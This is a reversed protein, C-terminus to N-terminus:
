TVLAEAGRKLKGALAATQARAKDLPVGPDACCSGYLKIKPETGSPRVTFVSGGKMRFQLVNSPPLDINKLVKGTARDVTVGNQYDLVSQVAIGGIEAPPSVRLSTMIETIREMGKQGKLTRSVLFEEFYGFEAYIRDLYDIIGMGNTRCWLAMEATLVAASVADKDRVEPELLYGYSEEGGFLYKEGGKEFEGMKEAIYKFGTLVDYMKAGFKEAIRSQLETTVITKVVAGNRPMRGQEAMASLVYHCLLSGLQNGSLLRYDGAAPVAIGLRDADPDTAMVVDANVRRALDVAMKLAAPEEPNPYSVTPFEGDPEGQEPVTTVTVGFDSLIGEVHYRGTGHLPTYVVKLNKGNRSLLEPRPLYRKIMARFPIDVEDDIYRLLEREVAEETGMPDGPDDVRKVEEIIAKDHPPVIQGGDSWYVKYGNYEPPNHSATVVIGATAGLIRVAFSLEPTPRVGSFLHVRIGETCLIRAAEEAFLRSYRRSDYAIVVSPDGSALGRRVAKEIYAALGKTARRIMYPNMRNLGGGIIGRMGGTGFELFTYFRESLSEWEGAALEREVEGRFTEHREMAIYAEAKKRLEDRDM